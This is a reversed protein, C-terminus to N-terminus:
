FALQMQAKFSGETDDEVDAALLVFDYNVMFRNRGGFHVNLGPTLLTSTTGDSGDIEGYSARFIPEVATIWRAVPESRWALWGQAGFFDRGTAPEADGWAIEGLMHLGPAFTGVELDVEFAHGRVFPDSEDVPAELFDRSSWGGGLTVVDLPQVTVRAAYQYSDDINSSGHLPGRFVGAQYTFGLPMFGPEGMVQVGIDRDSYDLSNVIAYEDVAGLGRVRLGREIPLIRTSSTQEILSFPKYAQGTLVQFAPSFNLKLYVDKLTVEDGAFDPDIEGSILDNVRVDFELRARRLILESPPESFITTTNFQTQVRGGITIEMAGSGISVGPRQSHADRAPAVVALSLLVLSVTTQPKM